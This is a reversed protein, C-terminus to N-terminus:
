GAQQQDYDEEDAFELIGRKKLFVKITAMSELYLCDLVFGYYRKQGKRPIKLEAKEFLVDSLWPPLSLAICIRLLVDPEYKVGEKGFYRTVTVEDLVALKAISQLSTKGQGVFSKCYRLAESFSSPIGAVIQQKWDEREQKAKDRWKEIIPAYHERYRANNFEIVKSGREYKKVFRLCCQAVNANASPRLAPDVDDTDLFEGDNGCVLGDVFAFDGSHMLARFHSNESYLKYLSERTVTFEEDKSVMEEDTSFGFPTFYCEGDPDYNNAGKATMHGLGVIRQRVRFRAVDFKTAIASIVQSFRFGDHNEYNLNIKKASAKQYERHITEKMVTYPMMLGMGGRRAAPELYRFGDNVKKKKPVTIKQFTFQKKSTSKCGNLTYFQYHYEYQFCAKFKALEFKDGHPHALNIVVTDAPVFQRRPPPLEKEDHEASDQVFIYDDEFFLVYDEDDHGVLRLLMTKLGYKELLTDAKRLKPDSLAELCKIRWIEEAADEVQENSMIPALHHDFKQYGRDERLEVPKLEQFEPKYGNEADMWASAVFGFKASYDQDDECATLTVNFPIDVLLDTRNLRWYTYSRLSFDAITVEETMIPIELMASIEGARLQNNFFRVMNSYSKGNINSDVSKLRPVLVTKTGTEDEDRRDDTFTVEDLEDIM